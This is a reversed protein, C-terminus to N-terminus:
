NELARFRAVLPRHDSAVGWDPIRQVYTGSVDWERAMGKSILIYDIRSYSDEKGYFYTWTIRRPEYRPDPNPQRDGNREAPRTDVLGRKGRGIVLKTSPSDKVDNLDGLVILNANADASLIRDIKERLVRAEEERLDAQDAVSVPRRSKLHATILTFSYRPNVRIDIEVFGRSVRFRRGYLLFSENTHSRRAAIPFKSLVAVHINTDYGSVFEWHPFKASENQLSERLEMLARLSGVEQLAIVDAGLARICERM